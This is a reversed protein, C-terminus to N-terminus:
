EQSAHLQSRTLRELDENNPCFQKADSVTDQELHEDCVQKAGCQDCRLMHTKIDTLNVKHLYEKEDLGIAALMKHLRLVKIRELLKERHLMGTLSNRIIARSLGIIVLVTVLGLIILFINGSINM